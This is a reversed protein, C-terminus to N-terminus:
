RLAPLVCATNLDCPLNQALETVAEDEGAKLFQLGREPFYSGLPFCKRKAQPRTTLASTQSGRGLTALSGSCCQQTAWGQVGGAQLEPGSETSHLSHICCQQWHHARCPGDEAKSSSGLNKRLLRPIPIHLQVGCRASCMLISVGDEPLGARDGGRACHHVPGFGWSSLAQM